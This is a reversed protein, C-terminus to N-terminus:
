RSGLVRDTFDNRFVGTPDTAGRIRRFRELEPYMRATEDFRSMDVAVGSVVAIDSWSHLSGIARIRESRHRALIDLVEQENRPRYRGTEWTRNGGFNVLARRDGAHQERGPASPLAAEEYPVPAFM